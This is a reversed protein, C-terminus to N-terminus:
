FKKLIDQDSEDLPIVQRPQPGPEWGIHHGKSAGSPIQRSAARNAMRAEDVTLAFGAVM